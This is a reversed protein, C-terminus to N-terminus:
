APHQGADRRHAIAGSQGSGVSRPPSEPLHRGSQTYPRHVLANVLLERVVREDYAPVRRRFMGDAVEYSERFDPITSWIADPLELPSLTYDDWVWKAVKQDNEDYKIAQVIPATGLRARDMARELMLVGLQTLHDDDALGYHALLEDDSKNKVSDKVRESARLQKVLAAKKAADVRPQAAAQMMEWPVQPRDTLLRMVDDGVIPNCVDGVRIFYRGDATSAIGTSRLIRLTIYEGGNSGSVIEPAVQVNVTLEGLRKRLRDLLEPGIRQDPPPEDTGDEIGIRLTGGDANAFCVCDRALEMWDARKGTIIRLSKNDQTQTEQSM